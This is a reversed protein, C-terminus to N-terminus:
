VVPIQGAGLSCVWALSMFKELAKARHKAKDRLLVMHSVWFAVTNFHDIMRTVHELHKYKEKQKPSSSVHRILDRPGISSYMAWDIRTMEYAIDEDSTEMFQRWQVKTLPMTPIMPVFGSRQPIEVSDLPSSISSGSLSETRTDSSVNSSCKTHRTLTEVDVVTGVQPREDGFGRNPLNSALKAGVRPISSATDAEPPLHHTDFDSCAWFTDDDEEIGELAQSVESHAIAFVRNPGLKTLFASLEQRTSPHAFDGPYSQIWQNLVDLYRLQSRMKVLQPADGRALSSFRRTISLLLRSPAAFLRYFCLFTHVFKRDARSMPSVILRDVLEDFSKGKGIATTEEEASREEGDVNVLLTEACHPDGQGARGTLLPGNPPRSEDYGDARALEAIASAPLLVDDLIASPEDYVPSSDPRQPCHQSTRPSYKASRGNHAVPSTASLDVCRRLESTARVHKALSRQAAPPKQSDSSPNMTTRARPRVQDM